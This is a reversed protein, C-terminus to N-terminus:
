GETTQSSSHAVFSLSKRRHITRSPVSRYIIRSYLIETNLMYERANAFEPFLSLIEPPLRNGFHFEEVVDDPVSVVVNLYCEERPEAAVEAQDSTETVVSKSEDVLQSNEVFM